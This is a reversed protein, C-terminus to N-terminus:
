KKLMQTFKLNIYKLNSLRASSKWRKRKWTKKESYLMSKGNDFYMIYHQRSEGVDIM